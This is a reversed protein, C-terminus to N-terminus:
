MSMTINKRRGTQPVISLSQLKSAVSKLGFGRSAKPQGRNYPDIGTTRIYDDMDMYSSGAGGGATSLLVSGMGKGTVQQNHAMMSRGGMPLKIIRSTNYVM